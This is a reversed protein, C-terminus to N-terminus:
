LDRLPSGQRASAVIDGIFRPLAFCAQHIEPTYYRTEIQAAEFRQQIIEPAVKRLDGDDSGWGLAMFGGVYTPVAALFCTADRFIGSFFRITQALEKPQFFPVGNQTVIIGGAKLMRHCDRYFSETFLVEGPGIPDTSDIVILDYRRETTAAFDKGDQIIVEFRPDEFAGRSVEPLHTKSFDVVGGDIEVLTFREVSDHKLVEAAIGGDGGGIVLVDKVAGHALIPVHSLMEHYIFEDATTLQTVGDLMMVKGFSVSDAIVLHQHDSRNDFLVRKVQFSTRLGEHLTESYWIGDGDSM